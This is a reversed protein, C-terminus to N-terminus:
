PTISCSKLGILEHIKKPNNKKLYNSLVHVRYQSGLFTGEPKISPYTSKAPPCLLNECWKAWPYATRFANNRSITIELPFLLSLCALLQALLAFKPNKHM